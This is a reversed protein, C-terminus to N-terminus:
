VLKYAPHGKLAKSSFLELNAQVFSTCLDIIVIAIKYIELLIVCKLQLFLM